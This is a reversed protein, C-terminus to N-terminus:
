FTVCLGIRRSFNLKFLVQSSSLM